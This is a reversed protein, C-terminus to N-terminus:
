ELGQPAGWPTEVETEIASWAIWDSSFFGMM